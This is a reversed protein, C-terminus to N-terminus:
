KIVMGIGGWTAGSIFEEYKYNDKVSNWANSVFCNQIRHEHTDVIDHFFIMGGEKVLDVYNDFDKKAGLETHDGDIFLFDVQENQFFDKVNKIVSESTSNGIFFKHDCNKEVETTDFIKSIDITGLKSCLYSFAITTGGTYCGIELGVAGEPIRILVEKFESEIQQIKYQKCKVWLDNIEM